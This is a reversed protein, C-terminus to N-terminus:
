LIKKVPPLRNNQKISCQRNTVHDKLLWHNNSPETLTSTQTIVYLISKVSSCESHANCKQVSWWVILFFFYSKTTVRHIPVNLALAQELSFQKLSVLKRKSYPHEDAYNHWAKRTVQRVQATIVTAEQVKQISVQDPQWWLFELMDHWNYYRNLKLYNVSCNSFMVSKFM